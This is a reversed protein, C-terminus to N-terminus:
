ITLYIHSSLCWYWHWINSYLETGYIGSHSLSHLLYSICSKYTCDVTSWSPPCPPPITYVNVTIDTETDWHPCISETKVLAVQLMTLEPCSVTVPHLYTSERSMIVGPHKMELHLIRLCLLYKGQSKVIYLIVKLFSRNLSMLQPVSWLTEYTVHIVTHM